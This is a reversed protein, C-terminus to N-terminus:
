SQGASYKWHAMSVPVHRGTLGHVAHEDTSSTLVGAPSHQRNQLLRRLLMPIGAFLEIQSVETECCKSCSGSLTVMTISSNPYALPTVNIKETQHLETTRGLLSVALGMQQNPWLVVVCKQVTLHHYISVFIADLATAEQCVVNHGQGAPM